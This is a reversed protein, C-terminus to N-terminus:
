GYPSLDDKCEEYEADLLDPNNKWLISKSESIMYFDIDRKPYCDIWEIQELSSGLSQKGVLDTFYNMVVLYREYPLIELFESLLFEEKTNLNYFKKLKHYQNETIDRDGDLYHSYFQIIKNTFEKNGLDDKNKVLNILYNDSFEDEDDYESIDFLEQFFKANKDYNNENRIKEWLLNYRRNSLEVEIQHSKM